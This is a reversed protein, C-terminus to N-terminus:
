LNILIRHSVLNVNVNEFHLCSITRTSVQQRLYSMINVEVIQEEMIAISVSLQLTIIM